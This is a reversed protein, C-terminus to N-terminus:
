LFLTEYNYPPRNYSYSFKTERNLPPFYIGSEKIHSPCFNSDVGGKAQDIYMNDTSINKKRLSTLNTGYKQSYFTSYDDRWFDQKSM